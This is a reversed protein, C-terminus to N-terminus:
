HDHDVAFRGDAESVDGLNVFFGSVFFFTVLLAEFFIGDDKGLRALMISAPLFMIAFPWTFLSVQYARVTGLRRHM